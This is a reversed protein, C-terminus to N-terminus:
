FFIYKLFSCLKGDSKSEKYIHINEVTHVQSKTTQSVKYIKQLYIGAQGSNTRRTRHETKRLASHYQNVAAFKMATVLNQSFKLRPKAMLSIRSGTITNSRHTRFAHYQSSKQDEWAQICSGSTVCALFLFCVVTEHPKIQLNFEVPSFRETTAM